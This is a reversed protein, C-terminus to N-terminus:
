LSCIDVHIVLRLSKGESDKFDSATVLSTVLDGPLVFSQDQLFSIGCSCLAECFFAKSSDALLSSADERRISAAAEFEDGCM